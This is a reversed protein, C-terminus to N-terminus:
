FGFKLAGSIVGLVKVGSFSALLSVFLVSIRSHLIATEVNPLGVFVYAWSAVMGVIVGSAIRAWLRGQSNMYALLGGLVGGLICLLLVSVYTVKM